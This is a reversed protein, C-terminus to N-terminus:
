SATELGRQADRRRQVRRTLRIAIAAVAMAAVWFLTLIILGESIASWTQELGFATVVM